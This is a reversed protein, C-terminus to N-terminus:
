THGYIHISLQVWMYVMSIGSKTYQGHLPMTLWPAWIPPKSTKAAWVHLFLRTWWRWVGQSTKRMNIKVSLGCHICTVYVGSSDHNNQNRSFGSSGWNSGWLAPIFIACTRPDEKYIQPGYDHIGLQINTDNTGPLIICPNSTNQEKASWVCPFLRLCFATVIKMCTHASTECATRNKCASSDTIKIMPFVQIGWNCGWTPLIITDADTIEWRYRHISAKLHVWFIYPLTLM